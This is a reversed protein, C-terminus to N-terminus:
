MGPVISHTKKFINKVAAILIVVAGILLLLWNISGIFGPMTILGFSENLIYLGVILYVVGLLKYIAGM